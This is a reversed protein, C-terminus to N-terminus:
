LPVRLLMGFLVYIFATLVVPYLILAWWRRAGFLIMLALLYLATVIPLLEFRYGFAIVSGASWVLIYALTLASAVSVRLIGGPQARDLDDRDRAPRVLAIALVIVAVAVGAVGLLTPWFRADIQGPAAQQRLVIQTSLFLYAATVGVAVLGFAIELPRSPAASASPEAPAHNTSSM